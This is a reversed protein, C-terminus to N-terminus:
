NSLRTWSKTAGFVTAWWDGGDMPNKLCSYQLPNGNGEGPILGLDGVSCASEVTHAVLSATDLLESWNKQELGTLLVVTNLLVTYSPPFPTSLKLLLDMHVVVNVYFMVYCLKVDNVYCTVSCLLCIWGLFLASWWRPCLNM